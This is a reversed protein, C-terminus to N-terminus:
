GIGLADAVTDHFRARFPNLRARDTGGPHCHNTLLVCVLEADLDIWLSCGTWGLHGIAGRPGKGLRTGITSGEASPTDWGLARTSGGVEPDRRAWRASREPLAGPRGRLADLWAQGFAAVDGATSFLGAHGAAGGLAWANDDNVAGRNVEHRHPCEETPAFDRGRAFSRAVVPDRGDLFATERLGLPGFVRRAALRALRDGGCAELVWGLALFGLDSYVARAGPAAELPAGLVGERLLAEGRAFAAGLGDLTPRRDPPLFAASAVPDAMAREYLKAHGPLGSSHALLHRVRVAGDFGPLWRGVPDELALAGEEALLLALTTTAMVKTISAVDFLDAPVLHRPTGWAGPLTGHWSGHVPEGGALVVAAMAPALGARREEELRASVGALVPMAAHAHSV